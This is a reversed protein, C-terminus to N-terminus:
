GGFYENWAKRIDSQRNRVVKELQGLEKASFGWANALRIAPDIWFKAVHEGKRVHIHLPELPNGENSFFFFRYGNWEFVRPMRALIRTTDISKM